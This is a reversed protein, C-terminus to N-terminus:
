SADLLPSDAGSLDINLTIAESRVEVQQTAKGHVHDIVNWINTTAIKENDSEILTEVRQVARNAITALKSKQNTIANSIEDNRMLRNGKIHLYHDREGGGEILEPYARRVAETANDTKIYENVFKQKAPTLKSKSYKM